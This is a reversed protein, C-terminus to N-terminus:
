GCQLHQCYRSTSMGSRLQLRWALVHVYSPLASIIVPLHWSCHVDAMTQSVAHMGAGGNLAKKENDVVQSRCALVATRM